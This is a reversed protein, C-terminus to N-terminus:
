KVVRVVHKTQRKTKGAEQHEQHGVVAHDLPTMLHARPDEEPIKPLYTSSKVKRVFTEM